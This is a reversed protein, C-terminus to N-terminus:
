VSARTSTCRPMRVRHPWVTTARHFQSGTPGAKLPRHPLDDDDHRAGKGQGVEEEAEPGDDRGVVAVEPPGAPEDDEGTDEVHEITPDRPQGLGAAAEALLEVRQDIEDREPHGRREDHVEELEVGRPLKGPNEAP